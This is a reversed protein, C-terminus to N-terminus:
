SHRALRRKDWMTAAWVLCGAAALGAGALALLRPSVPAQGTEPQLRIARNPVLWWTALLVLGMM